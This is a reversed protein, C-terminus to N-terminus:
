RCRFFASRTTGSCQHRWPRTPWGSRDRRPRSSWVRTCWWTSSGNVAYSITSNVIMGGVVPKKSAL